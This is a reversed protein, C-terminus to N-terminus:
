STPAKDRPTEVRGGAAEVAKRAAASAADVRV